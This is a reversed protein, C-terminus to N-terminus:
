LQAEGPLTVRMPRLSHLAWQHCGTSGARVRCLLRHRRTVICPGFMTAMLAAHRLANAQFHFAGGAQPFGPVIVGFQPVPVPAPQSVSPM